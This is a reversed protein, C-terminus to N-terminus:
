RRHYRALADLMEVDNDGGVRFPFDNDFLQILYDIAPKELTVSGDKNLVFYLAWEPKAEARMLENLYKAATRQGYTAVRTDALRTGTTAAERVFEFLFRDGRDNQMPSNRMLRSVQKLKENLDGTVAKGSILATAIEGCTAVFAPDYDNANRDLWPKNPLLRPGFWRTRDAVYHEFDSGNLSECAQQVIISDLLPFLQIARTLNYCHYSDPRADSQGAEAAATRLDVSNGPMLYGWEYDYHGWTLLLGRSELSLITHTALTEDDAPTTSTRELTSEFLTGPAAHLFVKPSFRPYQEAQTRLAARASELRDDLSRIDDVFLLTRQLLSQKSLCYRADNQDDLSKSRLSQIEACIAAAIPQYANSQLGWEDAVALYFAARMLDQYRHLPDTQTLQGAQEPAPGRQSLEATYLTLARTVITRDIQADVNAAPLDRIAEGAVTALRPLEVQCITGADSKAALAALAMAHLQLCESEFKRVDEGSPDQSALDLSAYRFFNNFPLASAREVFELAPRLEHLASWVDRKTIESFHSPVTTARSLCTDQFVGPFYWTNEQFLGQVPTVMLDSSMAKIIRGAASKTLFIDSNDVLQPAQRPSAHM